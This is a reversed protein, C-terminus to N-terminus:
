RAVSGNIAGNPARTAPPVVKGGWINTMNNYYSAQPSLIQDIQAQSQQQMEPTPAPLRYNGTSVASSPAMPTGFFGGGQSLPATSQQFYSGPLAAIGQQPLVQQTPATYTSQQGVGGRQSMPRNGAGNGGSPGRASSSSM